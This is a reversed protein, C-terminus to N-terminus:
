VLFFTSIVRDHFSLCGTVIINEGFLNDFVVADLKFNCHSKYDHHNKSSAVAPKIKTMAYAM